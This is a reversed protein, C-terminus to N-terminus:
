DFSECYMSISYHVYRYAQMYAKRVSWCFQRFQVNGDHQAVGNGRGLIVDHRSPFIIGNREDKARQAADAAQAEATEAVTLPFIPAKKKKKSSSSNNQPPTKKQLASHLKPKKTTFNNGHQRPLSPSVTTSPLKHGGAAAGATAIVAAIASATADSTNKAPSPKSADVNFPNPHEHYTKLGAATAETASGPASSTPLRRQVKTLPLARTPNTGGAAAASKKKKKKKDEEDEEHDNDRFKAPLKRKRKPPPTKQFGV